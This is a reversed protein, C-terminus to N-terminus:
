DELDEEIGQDMSFAPQEERPTGVVKAPVGVVTCHPPVDHLVVSGAGIKSCDGIRVNGLVKSGAGILVGNGVKPHRDGTQKGTGGLTVEHLMSVDNGIVATEGVVVGTAHDILIGEGIRAAPHFDAGYITSIRGQLYLALDHRGANWLSHAIRYAQLSQYGKFHLFPTALSGAAPDRELVAALDRRSARAIDPLNLTEHFLEGLRESGLTEESLRASLLRGLSSEFTGKSLVCAEIWPRLFPERDAIAQSDARVRAWIPDPEIRAM